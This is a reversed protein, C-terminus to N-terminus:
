VFHTYYQVMYITHVAHRPRAIRNLSIYWYYTPYIEIRLLLTLSLTYLATMTSM